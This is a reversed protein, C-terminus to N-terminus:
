ILLALLTAWFGTFVFSLAVVIIVVMIVYIILAALAGLLTTDHRAKIIFLTILLSVVNGVWVPLFLGVVFSLISTIVIIFLGTVFVHGLKSDEGKVAKIGIQLAITLLVIIIVIILIVIGINGFVDIIDALDLLM